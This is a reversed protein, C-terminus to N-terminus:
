RPHPPPSPTARDEVPSPCHGGPQTPPDAEGSPLLPPSGMAPGPCQGLPWQLWPWAPGEFARPDGPRYLPLSSCQFLVCSGLQPQAGPPCLRIICSKWHPSDTPSSTCPCSSPLPSHKLVRRLTRVEPAQCPLRPCPSPGGGAPRSGLGGSQAEPNSPPPSPSGVAAEALASFSGGDPSRGGGLM